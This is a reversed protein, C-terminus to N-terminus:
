ENIFFQKNGLFLPGKCANFRLSGLRRALYLFQSNKKENFNSSLQSITEFQVIFM